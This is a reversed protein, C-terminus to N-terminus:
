DTTIQIWIKGPTLTIEKGTADLFYLKSDIATPDKKWTANMVIGNQYINATGTGQTEVNIYQDRLFTSKTKLQIVSSVQVQENNTRDLEPTGGRSRKYTKTIPDYQWSVRFAGPYDIDIKDAINSVNRKIDVKGHPYPELKDEPTYKLVSAAQKLLSISTFGNHPRPITNKRYFYIGEYKLADVNDMIKSKLRELADHEGGWHAYISKLGAALPIFDDRASRISGIEEPLQCQFVAMMRTVGNPTVPMEFVMDAQSVGSLPRTEPDSAIMVAIPRQEANECELGTISAIKKNSTVIIADKKFWWVTFIAVVLFAIGGIIKLVKNIDLTNM